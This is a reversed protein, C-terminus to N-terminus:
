SPEQGAAGPKTFAAGWHRGLRRQVAEDCISDRVSLVACHKKGAADIYCQPQQWVGNRSNAPEGEWPAIECTPLSPYPPLLPPPPAEPPSM